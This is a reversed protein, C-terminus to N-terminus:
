VHLRQSAGQSRYQSRSCKGLIRAEERKQFVKAIPVELAIRFGNLFVVDGGIHEASRSIEILGTISYHADFHVTEPFLQFFEIGTFARFLRKLDHDLAPVIERLKDYM